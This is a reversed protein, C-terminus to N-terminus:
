RVQLAYLDADKMVFRFRVPRGNLEALDPREQWCIVKDLEDGYLVPMDALAYGPVTKRSEDQLEVQISGAASTAYNLTLRRGAFLLPRTTFEGGGYGAHVSAFGHRRLTLRRLRNDNWRFHEQVYLAFEGEEPQVIGWAVMNSRETWNRQDRGPRLWAERFNRNWNVGDRSTMFVTDSVGAVPHDPIKKRLPEFRKPFSLYIHPAGPCPLTANTYLHELPADPMYCNLQPPSWRIFDDSSASQIARTRSGGSEEIYCRSYCRYCGKVEDWFVANQSDFAGDTMVPTEQIKRWRIGDPSCLAFLGLGINGLLKVGGLAKYREEPKASPNTDKFVVLNNAEMGRWVVNNAASGNWEVVGLRPRTFHIGDTSEAYCTMQGSNADNGQSLYGRYFMRVLGEDQFVCFYSACADEWPEQMTFVVERKQPQTFQLTVNARSAILWDDVFMEVRDGIEFINM